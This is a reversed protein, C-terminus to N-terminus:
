RGFILKRNRRFDNFDVEYSIKLFRVQDPLTVTIVQNLRFGETVTSLPKFPYSRHQHRINSVFILFINVLSKQSANSDM